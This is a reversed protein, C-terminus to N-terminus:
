RHVIVPIKRARAVKARKLGRRMAIKMAWAKLASWKASRVMMALAAEFLAVCVAAPDGDDVFEALGILKIATVTKMKAM